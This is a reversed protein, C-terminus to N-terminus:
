HALILSLVIGRHLDGPRLKDGGDDMLEQGQQGRPQGHGLHQDHAVRSRGVEGPADPDGPLVVGRQLHLLRHEPILCGEPPDDFKFEQEGDFDAPVHDWSVDKRLPHVGEPWGDPLVLRKPYRHGIPEIGVLDRFEREAWNAAPVIDSISDLAPKDASLYTLVGCLLNERDFAFNHAVLYAGSFPRDDAGISIVYRADMERFMHGCVARIASPEVVVFMRGGGPLDARRISEGFRQKLEGLKTRAEM